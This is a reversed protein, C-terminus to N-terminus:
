VGRGVFIFIRRRLRRAWSPTIALGAYYLLTWLFEKRGGDHAHHLARAACSYMMQHYRRKVTISARNYRRQLLPKPVAAFRYGSRKAALYLAYDQANIFTEDYGGLAMIRSRRFALSPHLLINRRNLAASIDGDQVPCKILYRAGDDGDDLVGEAWSAVLDAGTQDFCALQKEIRDRRYCDDDDMRFVFTGSTAALGRNLSATIGINKANFLFMIQPWKEAFQSKELDDTHRDVVVVLEDPPITQDIMTSLYRDWGPRALSAMLVSIKM